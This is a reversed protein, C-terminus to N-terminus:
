KENIDNQDKFMEIFFFKKKMSTNKKIFIM